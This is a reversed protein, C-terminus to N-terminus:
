ITIDGLKYYKYKINFINRENNAGRNSPLQSASPWVSPTVGFFAASCIDAAHPPVLFGKSLKGKEGAAGKKRGFRAAAHHYKGDEGSTLGPSLPRSRGRTRRFACAARRTLSASPVAAPRKDKVRRSPQAVRRPFWAQGCSETFFRNKRYPYHNRIAVTYGKSLDM